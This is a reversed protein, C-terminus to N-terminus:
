RKNKFFNQILELHREENIYCLTVKNKLISEVIDKSELDLSDSYYYVNKIRSQVIASACMPCPFMSIFISCDILRWNDLKKGAYILAIIEAHCISSKEKEKLNYGRSVIENNRVIVAGVPVEDNNFAELALNYVVDSINM